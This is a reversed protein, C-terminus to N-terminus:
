RNSEELGGLFEEVQQPARGIFNKINVTELLQEHTLPISADNAILALLNNEKGYQKVSNGAIQSLQRLKEHIEQRDAGMKVAAMLINETAMFPLEEELNKTIVQPYIVCNKTIKALDDLISDISLFAEPIAVRRNASDDLTRELWQTAANYELTENLSLVHRALSCIRESNMPNRKYPMATSGVQHKSFPEEIEKDHALLRLDTGMKHASVAIGALVALVQMDQKRSYTQGSIPFVRAFNLKEVFRQELAKVKQHNGDFLELFSAQTGTAGKAGLCRLQNQRYQLEQLDLWFDQLWLAFRKGVTTPQAAQFHTYSLCPLDKYLDAQAALNQILIELKKELIALASRIIMADANDTVLCSTAGLHIIPKALPCVAGYAQVHAMVDHQLEKEIQDALVFDIDNVHERMEAIQLEEIPLGLELETEALAVWIERWCAHKAQRSFLVRMEESGYRNSFPSSFTSDSEAHLSAVFLSIFFGFNSVLKM